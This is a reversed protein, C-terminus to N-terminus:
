SNRTGMKGEKNVDKLKSQRHIQFILWKQPYDSDKVLVNKLRRQYFIDSSVARGPTGRRVREESLWISPRTWSASRYTLATAREMTGEALNKSPSCCLRSGGREGVLGTDDLSGCGCGGDVGVNRPPLASLLGGAICGTRLRM